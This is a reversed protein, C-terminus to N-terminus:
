HRSFFCWWFLFLNDNITMIEGRKIHFLSDSIKHAKAGFFDIVPYTKLLNHNEHNGDVYVTTWPRRSIWEIWKKDRNGGNWVFGADGCIILIDNKTLNNGEDFCKSNLKDIDIPCHIDGTIFVRSKKTTM